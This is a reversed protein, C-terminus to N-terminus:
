KAAPELKLYDIGAMYKREAKPNAGTIEFAVTQEHTDLDFTGLTVPGTVAVVPNYLDIPDGAKNGDVYVQVIGYDPAKTFQAVMIYRGKSTVNLPLQLKDGPKADTWWLQADGSWSGSGDTMEQTRTKGGTKKISAMKEAEIAGAVHKIEPVPWVARDAMAVPKFPDTGGPKLYWYVTCDYRTPRDQPYYKEISGEFSKQFPVSDAIQWRNVCIHGANNESITQDHFARQFLDPNSWAYGFYDESGTGFTSPFKEGDVFFKEDGEGWWGGRPNWVHLMVGCYRGVGETKLLTWDIAREPEAPALADAHWKAHFRMLKEVPKMLPARTIEFTVKREGESDNQLEIHAKRAYPMYWYSYWWGDKTLGSPYSLYPNAGPATGFFDGLPAWVSPEEEGDWSIKLVLQRLPIRDDPTAPLRDVKARLGTIAAPGELGAVVATSGAQVIVDKTETKAKGAALPQGLNSLIKDAADLAANERPALKRTFVPVATGKPFTTYTFHFYNGWKRDAVIKCSKRYPIPVFCNWGKS